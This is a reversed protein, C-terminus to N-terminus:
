ARAQKLEWRDRKEQARIQQELEEISIPPDDSPPPVPIADPGLAAELGYKDGTEFADLAAAYREAPLALLARALIEKSAVPPDLTIEAQKPVYLDRLRFPQRDPHDEDPFRSWTLRRAGEIDRVYSLFLRKDREDRHHHYDVLIQAPTRNTEAGCKGCRRKGDSWRTENHTNCKPCRGRKAGGMALEQSVDRLGMKTLYRGASDAERVDVSARKTPAMEEAKGLARTWGLRPALERAVEDIVAPRWRLWLHERMSEIEDDRLQRRTFLLVHLHPHWGNAGHTVELARVMAKISFRRRFTYAAKGQLLSKFARAIARRLPALRQSPLHRATLTLLLVGGGPHADRFGLNCAHVEAAKRAQIARACELCIWGLKCRRVGAVSARVDGSHKLAYARLSVTGDVRVPQRGCQVLRHVRNRRDSVVQGCSPCIWAGVDHFHEADPDLGAAAHQERCSRSRCRKSVGVPDWKAFVRRGDPNRCDPCRFGEDRVLARGTDQM